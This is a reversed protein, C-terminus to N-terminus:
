PSYEQREMVAISASAKSYVQAKTLRGITRTHLVFSFAIFKITCLQQNPIHTDDNKLSYLYINATTKKFLIM